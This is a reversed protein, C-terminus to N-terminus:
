AHARAMRRKDRVTFLLILCFWVLMGAVGAAIVGYVRYGPVLLFNLAISTGAGATISASLVLTKRRYVLYSGAYQALFSLMLMVVLWPILGLAEHYSRDVLMGAMAKMILGGAVALLCAGPLVYRLKQDLNNRSFRILAAPLYASLLPTLILPDLANGFRSAVSYIGVDHEGTFHYLIWRNAGNMLWLALAGPIIPVGVALASKIRDTTLTFHFAGLRRRYQIYAATISGLVIVFNSILIGAIGMRLVLVLFLNAAGLAIGLIVQTSTLVVARQSLRLVTFYITQFFTVFITALALVILWPPVGPIMPIGAGLVCLVGALYLAGSLLLYMGIVTDIMEKRSAGHVHYYEVFVVQALGLSFVTDFITTLTTILELQGFEATTLIRTYLPILFFGVGRLFLAGFSYVAFNRAPGSVLTARAAAIARSLGERMPEGNM